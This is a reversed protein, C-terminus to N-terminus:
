KVSENIWNELQSYLDQMTEKLEADPVSDIVSQFKSKNYNRHERPIDPHTEPTATENWVVYLEEATIANNEVSNQAARLGLAWIRIHDMQGGGVDPHYNTILEQIQEEITM